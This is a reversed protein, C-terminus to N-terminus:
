FDVLDKRGNEILAQRVEEVNEIRDAPNKVLKQHRTSLTKPLDVGLLDHIIPKMAAYFVETSESFDEYAISQYKLQHQNIWGVTLDKSSERLTIDAFMQELDISLKSSLVDNPDFATYQNTRLAFQHSLFARFSNKRWVHLVPIDYRQLIHFLHPAELLTKWLGNLAHTSNYKIDILPIRPTRQSVMRLYAFFLFETNQRSPLSLDIDKLLCTKRFYYYNVQKLDNDNINEPEQFIEGCNYFVKTSALLDRAFNTGTRQDAIIILPMPIDDKIGPITIKM